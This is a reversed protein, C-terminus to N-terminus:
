PPPPPPKWWHRKPVPFSCFYPPISFACRRFLTAVNSFLLYKSLYICMYIPVFFSIIDKRSLVSMAKRQKKTQFIIHFPNKAVRGGQYINALSSLPRSLLRRDREREREKPRHFSCDMWEGRKGKGGRDERGGDKHSGPFWRSLFPPFLFLSLTGYIPACCNRSSIFAHTHAPIFDPFIHQVGNLFKSADEELHVNRGLNGWFFIKESPLAYFPFATKAIGAFM